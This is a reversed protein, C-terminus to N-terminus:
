KPAEPSEHSVRYPFRASFSLWRMRWDHKFATQLEDATFVFGAEAGIEALSELETGSQLSAIQNRLSEDERTQRLFELANQVSM